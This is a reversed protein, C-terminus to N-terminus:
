RCIELCIKETGRDVGKNEEMKGRKIRGTSAEWEVFKDVTREEGRRLRM